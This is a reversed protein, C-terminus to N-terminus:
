AAKLRTWNGASLELPAIMVVVARPRVGDDLLCALQLWMYVPTAARYGFNYVLPARPEDPFGMDNPSVGMQARSSGFVLVLPREPRLRQWREVRRLRHGYEPDRWEPKVTEAAVALGLTVLGFTVGGLIVARRASRRGSAPAAWRRAPARPTPALKPLSSPVLAE